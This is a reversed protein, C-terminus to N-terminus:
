IREIQEKTCLWGDNNNDSQVKYFKIPKHRHKTTGIIIGTEGFGCHKSDIIKVKDNKKM